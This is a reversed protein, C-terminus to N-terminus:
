EYINEYNVNASIEPSIKEWLFDSFDLSFGNHILGLVLLIFISLFFLFTWRTAPNEKKTQDFYYEEEPEPIHIKMM